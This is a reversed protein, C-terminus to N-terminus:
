KRTFYVRGETPMFDIESRHVSFAAFEALRTKGATDMEGFAEVEDMQSFLHWADRSSIWGKEGKSLAQLSGSLENESGAALRRLDPPRVPPGGILRKIRELLSM